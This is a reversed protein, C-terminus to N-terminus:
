VCNLQKKIDFFFKLHWGRGKDFPLDPPIEAERKALLM